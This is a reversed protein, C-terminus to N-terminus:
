GQAKFLVQVDKSTREGFKSAASVFIGHSMVKYQLKIAGVISPEEGLKNIDSLMSDHNRAMKTRMSGIGEVIADGVTPSKGAGEAAKQAETISDSCIYHDNGMEKQFSIIDKEEPEPLKVPDNASIQEPTFQLSLAANEIM